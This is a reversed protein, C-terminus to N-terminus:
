WRHYDMRIMM